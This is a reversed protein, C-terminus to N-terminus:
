KKSTKFSMNNYKTTYFKLNINKNTKISENFETVYELKLRSEKTKKGDKNYGILNLSYNSNKDLFFKYDLYYEDEEDNLSLFIKEKTDTNKVFIKLDDKISKPNNKIIRIKEEDSKIRFANTLNQILISLNNKDTFIVKAKEDNVTIKDIDTKKIRIKNSIRNKYESKLYIDYANFSKLDNFLIKVNYEEDATNHELKFRKINKELIDDSKTRGIFEIYCNEINNYKPLEINFLISDENVTLKKINLFANHMSKIEFLEDPIEIKPNRFLFIDWYTKGNENYLKKETNLDLKLLKKLEKEHKNLSLYIYLNDINNLDNDYINNLKKCERSLMKYGIDWYAKNMEENELIGPLPITVRRMLIKFYEPYFEILKDLELEFSNIRDIFNWTEKRRTSLSQEATNNRVLRWLYVCDTIISTKRSYTHTIHSFKRDAYVKIEPPLEINNDILLSKRIIKNWYFTENFIMPYDKPHFTKEEEWVNREHDSMEHQFNGILFNAKGVCIDSDTKKAKNYLKEYAYIPVIDDNDVLIVYEGKAAKIGINASTALGDNQKKDIIRVNDYNKEYKKCISLSDDTSADNVLIIELGDLTQNVLSDICEELYKEGNYVLVIATLKYEPTQKINLDKEIENM